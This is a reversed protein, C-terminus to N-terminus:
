RHRGVAGVLVAPNPLCAVYMDNLCFFFCRSVGLKLRKGSRVLLTHRFFLFLRSSAFLLSAHPRRARVPNSLLPCPSPMAAEHHRFFRVPVLYRDVMATAPTFLVHLVFIDVILPTKQCSM